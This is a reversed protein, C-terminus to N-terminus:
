GQKTPPEEDVVWARRRGPGREPEEDIAAPMV